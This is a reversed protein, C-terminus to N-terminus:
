GIYSPLALAFDHLLADLQNHYTILEKTKTDPQNGCGYQSPNRHPMHCSTQGSLWKSEPLLGHQSLLAPVEGARRIDIIMSMNKLVQKAGKLGETPGAFHGYVMANSLQRHCHKCKQNDPLGGNLDWTKYNLLIDYLSHDQYPKYWRRLYNYFSWVRDVPDRIITFM